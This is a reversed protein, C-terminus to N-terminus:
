LNPMTSQIHVGQEIGHCNSSNTSASFTKKEGVCCVAIMTIKIEFKFRRKM